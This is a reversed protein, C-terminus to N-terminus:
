AKLKTHVRYLTQTLPDSWRWEPESEGPSVVYVSPQGTGPNVVNPDTITDGRQPVTAVGGLILVAAPIKYDRETWDRSQGPELHERPTRAQGAWAVGTLTVTLAPAGPRTYTLPLAGAAATQMASVLLAQGDALLGM